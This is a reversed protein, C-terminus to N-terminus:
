KPSNTEVEVAPQCSTLLRFRIEPFQTQLENTLLRAVRPTFKGITIWNTPIWVLSPHFVLPFSLRIRDLLDAGIAGNARIQITETEEEMWDMGGQPEGIWGVITNDITLAVCRGLASALEREDHTRIPFVTKQCNNCFRTALNDTSSLEDWKKPCFFKLDCKKFESM